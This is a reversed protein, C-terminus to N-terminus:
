EAQVANVLIRKTKTGAPWCTMLTLTSENLYAPKLEQLPDVKEPNVVNKNEVLYRYDQNNYKILIEDGTDLNGLTSFISKYNKPNYFIPLVSHGYIFINGTEGPLETNLYHGLAEDPNLNKPNTEVLASKINLKPITIYFFEPANADVTSTSESTKGSGTLEKFEFYNFGTVVGAMSDALPKAIVDATKFFYIPIVVQTILILVGLVVLSTSILKTRAFFGWNVEKYLPDFSEDKLYKYPRFGPM